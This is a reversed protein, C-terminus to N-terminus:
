EEPNISNVTTNWSSTYYDSYTGNGNLDGYAELFYWPTTVTPNTVGTALKPKTSPIGGANGAAGGYRYYVYTNVNVGLKKFNTCTTSACSSTDWVVKQDSPTGAPFWATVAATGGAGSIDLYQTSAHDNYWTEEAGRIGQLTATVEATKGAKLFSAMGVAALVALVAVIAVTIMLEILTFGESSRRTSRSKTNSM